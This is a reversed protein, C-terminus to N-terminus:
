VSPDLFDIIDEDSEKLWVAGGTKRKDAKVKKTKVKPTEETDIDSDSDQLLDDNSYFYKM